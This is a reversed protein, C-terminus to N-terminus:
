QQHSLGERLCHGGWHQNGHVVQRGKEEMRCFSLVDDRKFGASVPRAQVVFLEGSIGDKAWEIDMPRRYHTEIDMAWKGLTLIESDRLVFSKREERTTAMEKTGGGEKYICKKEKGGLVKELIPPKRMGELLLKYVRYEDPIVTGQVVSEGLGWAATIVVLDPFGTDKDMSFMVGAGAKDSRVMRQVGVCLSVDLHGYGMKERYGIARDTFLSAFCGRCAELLEREGRINLYSDLMGAFSAEPQDESTASSRVAVDLLSEGSSRSLDM